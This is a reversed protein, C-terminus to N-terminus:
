RNLQVDAFDVRNILDDLTDLNRELKVIHPLSKFDKQLNHINASTIAHQAELRELQLSVQGIREIVEHEKDRLMSLEVGDLKEPASVINV